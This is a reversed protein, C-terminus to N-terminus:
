KKPFALGLEKALDALHELNDGTTRDLADIQFLIILLAISYKLLINAEPRDAPLMKRQSMMDDAVMEIAKIFTVETNSMGGIPPTVLNERRLTELEALWMPLKDIDPDVGVARDRIYNVIERQEGKTLTDSM